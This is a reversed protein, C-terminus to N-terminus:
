VRRKQSKLIKIENKLKTEQNLIDEYTKEIDEIYKPINEINETRRLYGEAYIKFYEKKDEKTEKQMKEYKSFAQYYREREEKLYKKYNQKHYLEMETDEIILNILTKVLKKDLKGPKFIYGKPKKSKETPKSNEVLIEVTDTIGIHSKYQRKSSIADFEDAVRIIQGEYPIDEATLGNPYGTGDLSEHHYYPGAMYPRLKPDNMCMKYGITTHSKMVEYEEDTLKGNKQLIQPPIFIKGIDHIYACTTAYIIFGEDMGIETCIRCTLNAVNESHRRTYADLGDLMSLQYKIKEDLNYSKLVESSYFDIKTIQDFM